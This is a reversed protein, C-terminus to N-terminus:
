ASQGATPRTEGESREIRALHPALWRSAVKTPPWWLPERSVASTRDPDALEARLFRPGDPTPLLGRLVMAEPAPAPRGAARAAIAAAAADAQQAALGGQKIAVTTGDGAAHVDPVGVVRCQEDVPVFGHEDHPLGAIRPGELIPLAVIRDTSMWAGAVRLATPTVVDAHVGPHVVVRSADLLAGVEAAARQGFVALPRPEHTIVSVCVADPHRREARAQLLLALEYAPLTWTVGDPVVIAVHPVLGDDLDALVDDFDEPATERDFAIGHEFAPYARAGVAVLLVDYPIDRHGATRVVHGDADVAAVADLVLGADLGACLESLRHHRRPALGFPEAVTLPRYSFDDHPAVLTIAIRAPARSRLAVAAELAAVGGGAIVVRLPDHDQQPMATM